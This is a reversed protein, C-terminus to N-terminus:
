YPISSKWYLIPPYVGFNSFLVIIVVFLALGLLFMINKFSKSDKHHISNTPTSQFKM